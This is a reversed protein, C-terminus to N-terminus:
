IIGRGEMRAKWQELRDSQRQQHAEKKHSGTHSARHCATCVSRINSWDLARRWAEAPSTAAEIEQIHHVAYMPTIIGRSQCDECLPNAARKRDRIQRWERSNMIQKYILSHSM